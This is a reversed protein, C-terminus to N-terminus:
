DQQKLNNVIDDIEGALSVIEPADVPNNANERGSHLSGGSVRSYCRHLRDVMTPDISIKKIKEWEIERGMSPPCTDKYFFKCVVQDIAKRLELSAKEVDVEEASALQRANEIRTEYASSDLVVLGKAGNSASEVNYLLVHTHNDTCQIRKCLRRKGNPGFKLCEVLYEYHTFLIMQNKLETITEAFNAITPNDLSTVPDDFILPRNSDQAQAEALFMALAVAKQEGESLVDKVDGNVDSFEVKFLTKGLRGRNEVLRVKLRSGCLKGLYETFLRILEETILNNFAERAQHTIVNTSIHSAVDSIASAKDQASFLDKFWKLNDVIAKTQRLQVINREIRSLTETAHKSKEQVEALRSELSKYFHSLATTLGAIPLEPCAVNKRMRICDSCELYWQKICANFEDAWQLVEKDVNCSTAGAVLGGSFSVVCNSDYSFKKSCANLKELADKLQRESHEQLYSAYSQVREIAHEDFPRWCYPCVTDSGVHKKKYEEAASVFSRWEASKIGPISSLAKYRMRSKEAQFIAVNYASLVNNWEESSKRVQECIAHIKKEQAKCEQFLSRLDREFLALNGSIYQEREKKLTDFSKSFDDELRTSLLMERDSATFDRAIIKDKWDPMLSYDITEVKAVLVKSTAELDKQFRLALDTLNKYLYLGCPLLVTDDPAHASLLGDVYSQNFFRIQALYRNTVNQGQKWTITQETPPNTLVDYKLLASAELHEKSYINGLIDHALDGRCIKDFIRYYGTKGSGNKGFFVTIGKSFEITQNQKLANVGQRHSLSILNIVKNRRGSVAIPASSIAFPTENILSDIFRKSEVKYQQELASGEYRLVLSTLMRLWTPRNPALFQNLFDSAHKM